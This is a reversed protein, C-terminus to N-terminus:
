LVITSVDCSCAAPAPKIRKLEHRKAKAIHWLDHTNQMALWLEARGGRSVGLWAELRVAFEPTIPTLGHLVRSLAARSVGLAGAAETVDLGLAPLVDERLTEGPYPPDHQRVGYRRRLTALPLTQQSEINGREGYV